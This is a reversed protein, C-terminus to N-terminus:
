TFFSRETNRFTNSLGCFTTSYKGSNKLLLESEYEFEFEGIMKGTKDGHPKQQRSLLLLLCHNGWAFLIM